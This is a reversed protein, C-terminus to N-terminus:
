STNLKNSVLRLILVIFIQVDSAAQGQKQRNDSPTAPETWPMTAIILKPINIFVETGIRKQWLMGPIYIDTKFILGSPVLLYGETDEAAEVVKDVKGIEGHDSGRVTDGPQVNTSGATPNSICCSIM